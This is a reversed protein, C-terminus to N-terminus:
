GITKRGPPLPVLDWTQFKLLANYEDEAAKKWNAYLFTEDITQPIVETLAAMYVKPKFIGSKSRTIMPHINTTFPELPPPNMSELSPVDIPIEIHINPSSLINHDSSSDSESQINNPTFHTPQHSPLSPHPTIPHNEPQQTDRLPTTPIPQTFAKNNEPSPFPINPLDIKNNAALKRINLQSIKPFTGEYFRVHRSIFIRGTQIDLCKYGRHQTSYGLFICQASRFDLKHQNYPRLMPYCECGFVKLMSYDPKVGYLKEFPLKHAKGFQCAQCLSVVPPNNFPIELM